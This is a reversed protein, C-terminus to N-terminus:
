QQPRVTSELALALEKGSSSDSGASREAWCHCASRIAMGSCGGENGEM